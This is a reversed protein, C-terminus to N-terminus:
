LPTLIVSDPNMIAKIVNQPECNPYTYTFPGMISSYLNRYKEAMELNGDAKYFLCVKIAILSALLPHEFAISAMIEDIDNNPKACLELARTCYKRWRSKELDCNCRFKWISEIWDHIEDIPKLFKLSSFYSIFIEQNKKIPKIAVIFMNYGDIINLANPNCSHNFRSFNRYVLSKDKVIISNTNIIGEIENESTSNKLEYIWQSAYQGRADFYETDYLIVEGSHIYETAFVGSRTCVGDTRIEWKMVQEKFHLHDNITKM